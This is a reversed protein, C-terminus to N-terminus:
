NSSGSAAFASNVPYSAKCGAARRCVRGAHAAHGHLAEGPCVRLAGGSRSYSLEGSGYLKSFTCACAGKLAQGPLVGWFLLVLARNVSRHASAGAPRGVPALALRSAAHAWCCSRTLARTSVKRQKSSYIASPSPGCATIDTHQEASCAGNLLDRMILFPEFGSQLSSICALMPRGAMSILGLLAELCRGQCACRRTRCM